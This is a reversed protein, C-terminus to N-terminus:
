VAHLLIIANLNTYLMNRRTNVFIAEIIKRDNSFLLFHTAIIM